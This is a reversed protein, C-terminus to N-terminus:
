KFKSNFVYLRLLASNLRLFFVERAYEVMNFVIFCGKRILGVM